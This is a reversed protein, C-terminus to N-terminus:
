PTTANESQTPAKRHRRSNSRRRVRAAIYADGEHEPIFGMLARIFRKDVLECCEYVNRQLAEVKDKAPQVLEPPLHEDLIAWLEDTLQAGTEDLDTRHQM